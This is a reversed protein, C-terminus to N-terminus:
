PLPATLTRLRLLAAAIEVAALDDVYRGFADRATRQAELVTPLPAAGEAYATLAMAAVRRASALVREDRAVRARASELERRAQAVAADNDRKARVYEQQARALGARAAAIEGSRASWIPLPLSIGFTPLNGPQTADGWEVGLFVSPTAFVSNVETKLAREAGHVNAQAAAIALPAVTSDAPVAAPAISLAGRLSDAPTISPRDAPLGMVRQLELLVALAALSDAASANEAQGANVAALEVDLDSADGADRRVRALTLLSDSAIATLRSLRAHAAAALTATYLTDTEVELSALELANRYLAARRFQEAADSRASRMWPYEVPQDVSVHYQPLSKSYSAALAPNPYASAIRALANAFATDTRALLARSGATDAAAIAEARTVSRLPATSQAHAAAPAILAAAILPGARMPCLIRAAAGRPWRRRAGPHPFARPSGEGRAKRHGM